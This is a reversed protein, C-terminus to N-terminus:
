NMWAPMESQVEGAFASAGTAVLEYERGPSWDGGSVIGIVRGAADWVAAGSNGPVVHAGFVIWPHEVRSLQSCKSLLYNTDNDNAVVCVSQGIQLHYDGLQGYVPFAADASVLVSVDGDKLHKVLALDHFTGRNTKALIQLADGLDGCTVVHKATLVVKPAVAVGTGLSVKGNPCLVALRLTAEYKIEDVQTAYGGSRVRPGCGDCASLLVVALLVLRM